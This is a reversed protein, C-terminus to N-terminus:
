VWELGKFRCRFFPLAKDPQGVNLLVSGADMYLDAFADM